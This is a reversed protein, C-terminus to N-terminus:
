TVHTSNFSINVDAPAAGQGIFTVFPKDVTVQEVYRAPAIFINARATDTQGSVADVAGQVTPFAGNAGNPNVFYDSARADNSAAFVIAGVCALASRFQRPRHMTPRRRWMLLSDGPPRAID